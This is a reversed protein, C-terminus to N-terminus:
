YTVKKAFAATVEDENIQGQLERIVHVDRENLPVYQAAFNLAIHKFNSSRPVVVVNEWMAWRLVVQAVSADYSAAIHTLLSNNLVPNYALGVDLWSRGLTSSYCIIVSTERVVTSSQTIFRFWLLSCACLAFVSWGVQLGHLSHWARCM